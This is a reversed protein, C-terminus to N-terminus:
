QDDKSHDEDLDISENSNPSRRIKQRKQGLSTLLALRFERSNQADQRQIDILSDIQKRKLENALEDQGAQSSAAATSLGEAVPLGLKTVLANDRDHM